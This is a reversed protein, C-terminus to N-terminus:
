RKYKSTTVDCTKSQLFKSREVRIPRNEQSNISAVSIKMQALSQRVAGVKEVDQTVSLGVVSALSMALLMKFEAGYRSVETEDAVYRLPFGDGYNEDTYIYGAEVTYTNDKIDVDGAGLVKLCDAPYEYATQYGFGTPIAIDVAAVFKRKRAFNPMVEKLLAQRTVDYWLSFLIEHDSKPSEISSISDYNGLLGLAMNCIGEAVNITV